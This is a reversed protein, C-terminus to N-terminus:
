KSCTLDIRFSPDKTGWPLAKAFDGGESPTVRWLLKTPKRAANANSGDINTLTGKWVGAPPMQAYTFKQGNLEDTTGWNMPTGDASLWAVHQSDAMFVSDSATMMKTTGNRAELDIGWRAGGDEPILRLNSLKIRWVGNFLTQNLCGELATLQKSGGAIGGASAPAAASSISLVDGATSVKLGAAVLASVPVYTQGNLSVTNGPVSRGNVTIKLASVTGSSLTLALLLIRANM